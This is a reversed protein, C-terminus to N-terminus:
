KNIGMMLVAKDLPGGSENKYKGRANQFPWLITYFYRSFINALGFLELYYKEFLRIKCTKRSKSRVNVKLFLYIGKQM